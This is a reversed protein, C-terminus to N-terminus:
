APQPMPIPDARLAPRFTAAILAAGIGIGFSGIYLWGYAAYRDYIWGGALPGLAMGLSAAMATAGFITGMMRM